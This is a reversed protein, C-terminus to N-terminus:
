TVSHYKSLFLGWRQVHFTIQELDILEKAQPAKAVIIQLFACRWKTTDTQRRMFISSGCL